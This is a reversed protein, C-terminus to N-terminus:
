DHSEQLAKHPVLKLAFLAFGGLLLGIWVLARSHSQHDWFYGIFPALLVYGARRGFNLASNLLARNGSEFAANLRHEIIPIHLVQLADHALVIWLFAWAHLALVLYVVGTLLAYVTMQQRDTGPTKKYHHSLLSRWADRSFALLGFLALPIGARAYLGASLWFGYYTAANLASSLLALSWVERRKMIDQWVVHRIKRVDIKHSAAHPMDHLHLACYLAVLSTLGELAFVFRISLLSALLSGLAASVGTAAFAIMQSRQRWKRFQNEQGLVVLSEYGLATDAGSMLGFGIALLIESVMFLAFHHSAAYVGFGLLTCLAGFIVSKARGFTDALRGSPLEWAIVFVSFIMQLHFIDTLKLGNQDFFPVLLAATLGVSAFPKVALLWKLNKRAQIKHNM